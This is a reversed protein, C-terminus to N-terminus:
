YLRLEAHNKHRVDQEASRDRFLCLSVMSPKIMFVRDSVNLFPCHYWFAYRNTNLFSSM